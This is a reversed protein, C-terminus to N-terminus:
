PLTQMESPSCLHSCKQTNKTQKERTSKNSSTRDTHANSTSQCFLMNYMTMRSEPNLTNERLRTRDTHDDEAQAREHRPSSKAGGCASVPASAQSRHCSTGYDISISGYDTSASRCFGVALEQALHARMDGEHHRRRRTMRSPGINPVMLQRTARCACVYTWALSAIVYSLNDSKLQKLTASRM